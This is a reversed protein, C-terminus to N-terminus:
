RGSRHYRRWRNDHWRPFPQDFSQWYGRRLQLHKIANMGGEITDAGGNGKFFNIVDFGDAGTLSDNGGGGIVGEIGSLAITQDSPQNTGDGNREIWSLQTSDLDIFVGNAHNSFDIKDFGEGGIFSVKQNAGSAVYSSFTDNGDGGFAIDGNNDAHIVDDLVSGNTYAASNGNVSTFVDTPAVTIQTSDTTFTTTQTALTDVSIHASDGVNKAVIYITDGELVADVGISGLGVMGSHVNGADHGTGDILENFFDQITAHNNDITVDGVMSGSADYFTFTTAKALSMDLDTVGFTLFAKGGWQESSLDRAEMGGEFGKLDAYTENTRTLLTYENKATANTFDNLVIDGGASTSFKCIM